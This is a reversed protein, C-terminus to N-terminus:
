RAPKNRACACRVRRPPAHRRRRRARQGRRGRGRPAGRLFFFWAHVRLPACDLRRGLGSPVITSYFIYYYLLLTTTAVLLEVCSFFGLVCACHLATSGGESVHAHTRALSRAHTRAHTPPDIRAHTCANRLPAAAASFYYITTLYDLVELGADAVAPDGGSQLFLLM